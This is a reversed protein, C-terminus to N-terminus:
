RLRRGPATHRRRRRSQPAVRVRSASRFSRCAVWSRGYGPQKGVGHPCGAVPPSRPYGRGGPGHAPHCTLDETFRPGDRWVFRRRACWVVLPYTVSLVSMGAWDAQDLPSVGLQALEDRLAETAVRNETM